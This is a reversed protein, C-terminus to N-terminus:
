HSTGNTAPTGDADHPAAHGNREVARIGRRYDYDALGIDERILAIALSHKAEKSIRAADESAFEMSGFEVALKIGEQLSVIRRVTLQKPAAEPSPTGNAEKSSAAPLTTISM